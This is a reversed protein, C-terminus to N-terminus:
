QMLFILPRIVKSAYPYEYLYVAKAVATETGMEVLKNPTHNFVFGNDVDGEVPEFVTDDNTTIYSPTKIEDFAINGSSAVNYIGM